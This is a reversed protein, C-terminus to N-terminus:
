DGMEQRTHLRPLPRVALWSAQTRPWRTDSQCEVEVVQRSLKKIQNREKREPPSKRLSKRVQEAVEPPGASGAHETFLPQFTSTTVGGTLRDRLYYPRPLM